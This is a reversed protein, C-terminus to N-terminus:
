AGAFVWTLLAVDAISVVALIAAPVAPKAIRAESFARVALFPLAATGVALPLFVYLLNSRGGCSDFCSLSAAFAGLLLYLAVPFAVIATLVFVATKTRM